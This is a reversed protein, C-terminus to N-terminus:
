QASRSRLQNWLLAPEWARALTASGMVALYAITRVLQDRGQYGEDVVAKWLGPSDKGGLMWDGFNWAAHMGIPLALGRTAIAAM